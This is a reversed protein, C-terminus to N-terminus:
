IVQLASVRGLRSVQWKEFLGHLRPRNSGPARTHLESSSLLVLVSFIPLCQLKRGDREEKEFEVTVANENTFIKMQMRSGIATRETTREDCCKQPM